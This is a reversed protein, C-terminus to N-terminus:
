QVRSDDDVTSLIGVAAVIASAQGAYVPGFGLGVRRTASEFLLDEVPKCECGFVLDISYKAFCRVLEKPCFVIEEGPIAVVEGRVKTLLESTRRCWAPQVSCSGDSDCQWAHNGFVPDLRGLVFGGIALKEIIVLM